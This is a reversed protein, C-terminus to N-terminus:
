LGVSEKALEDAIENGEVGSHGKVKVFHVNLKNKISKYFEHYKKTGEKNREWEGNAWMEIGAYDYFITLNKIELSLAKEMAAQAGLVEGAVNRMTIMEEDNGNGQILYRTENIKGSEQDQIRHCLFGGDGYIKESENFSGDVFAYSLITNFDIQELEITDKNMYEVAEEETLFSKYVAGKFGNVASKCANWSTYIGPVNGKRVAYYKGM